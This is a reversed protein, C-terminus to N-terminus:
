GGSRAPSVAPYGGTIEFGEDFFFQRASSPVARNDMFMIQTYAEVHENVDYYGM